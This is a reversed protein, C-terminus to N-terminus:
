SGSTVTHAVGANNTWTVISGPKVTVSSPSFGPVGGVISVAASTNSSAADVIVSNGTMNSHITCHYPFTGATMFTHPFTGSAPISGSSLEPGGGGGPPATSKSSSGCAYITALTAIAISLATTSAWFWRRKTM